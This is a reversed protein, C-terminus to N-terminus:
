GKELVHDAWSVLQRADRTYVDVKWNRWIENTSMFANGGVAIRCGPFLSHIRDAAERCLRLHQPMTVSLAVLQPQHEEMAEELANFPVSAGLYISDWGDYEFLDAVMRAGMEHLESGVCAAMMKRNRRKQGFIVPYMRSLALQTVSTCYHEKDVSIVNEHWLDGVRRMSEAIIDGYIDRLPIGEELYGTVLSVATRTDSALLSDLYQRVQSEYKEPKWEKKCTGKGYEGAAARAGLDTLRVAKMGDNKNMVRSACDGVQKFHRWVMNRLGDEPCQAMVPLLLRYLWRAYEEFIRADELVFATNLIEIDLQVAEQVKDRDGAPIDHREMYSFLDCPQKYVEDALKRFEMDYDHLETDNDYFGADYNVSM